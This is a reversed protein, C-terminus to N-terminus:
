FRTMLNSISRLIQSSHQTMKINTSTSFTENQLYNHHQQSDKTVLTWSFADFKWSAIKPLALQLCCPPEIPQMWTFPPMFLTCDLPSFMFRLTQSNRWLIRAPKNKIESCSSESYYNSCMAAHEELKIFTLCDWNGSSVHNCINLHFKSADHTSGHWLLVSTLLIVWRGKLIFHWIHVYNVIKNTYGVTKDNRFKQM